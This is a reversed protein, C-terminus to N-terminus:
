GATQQSSETIWLNLALTLASPQDREIANKEFPIGIGGSCEIGEDLSQTIELVILGVSKQLKELAPHEWVAAAKRYPLGAALPNFRPQDRADVQVILFLFARHFGGAALQNAQAVAKEIEGLKNPKGNVEVVAEKQFKIRKCEIAVSRSCDGKAVLLADVDGPGNVLELKTGPVKLYLRHPNSLKLAEAVLCGHRGFILEVM